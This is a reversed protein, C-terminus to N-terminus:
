HRPLSPPRPQDRCVEPCEPTSSTCSPCKTVEDGSSYPLLLILSLPHLFCLFLLVLLAYYKPARPSPASKVAAKCLQM